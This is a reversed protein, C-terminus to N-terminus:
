FLKIIYQQKAIGIIVKYSLAVVIHRCKNFYELFYDFILFKFIFYTSILCSRSIDWWYPIYYNEFCFVRFKTCIKMFVANTAEYCRRLAIM